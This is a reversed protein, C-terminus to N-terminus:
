PVARPQVAKPQLSPQVSKSPAEVPPAPNPPASRTTPESRTAGAANSGAQIHRAQAPSVFLRVSNGRPVVVVEVTLPNPQPRPEPRPPAFNAQAVLAVTALSALVALGATTGILARRAQPQTALGSRRALWIGAWGLALTLALGSVMTRWAVPLLSGREAGAGPPGPQQVLHAPIELRIPGGNPQSVVELTAQNQPAPLPRPRETRRGPAIDAWATAACSGLFVVALTAILLSSQSKVM